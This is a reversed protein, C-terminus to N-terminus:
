STKKPLCYQHKRIWEQALKDAKNLENVTMENAVLNSNNRSYEYGGMLSIKWWMQALINDKVVGDGKHYLNGMNFQAKGLCKNAAKRYWSVAEILNKKVGRGQSYAGGIMVMAIPNGQQAAKNFWYFQKALNANPSLKGSMHMMGMYLQAKVHGSKALPTLLKVANERHGLKFARTGEEYPGALSISVLGLWLIM